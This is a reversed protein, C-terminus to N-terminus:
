GASFYSTCWGDANVRQEPFINCTAWQTDADGRFHTCNACRAGAERAPNDIQEADHGYSLQRARESSIDLKPLESAAATRRGLLGVAPVIAAGTLALRIFHRRQQLKTRFAPM